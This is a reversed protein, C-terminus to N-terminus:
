LLWILLQFNFASLQFGLEINLTRHQINMGGSEPKCGGGGCFFRTIMAWGGGPSRASGGAQRRQFLL